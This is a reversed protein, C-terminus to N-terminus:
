RYAVAPHAMQPVFGRHGCRKQGTGPRAPTKREGKVCIKIINDKITLKKVRLASIIFSTKM